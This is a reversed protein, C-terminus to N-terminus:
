NGKKLKSLLVDTIKIVYDTAAEIGEEYRGEKFCEGAIHGAIFLRQDEVRFLDSESVNSNEYNKHTKLWKENQVSLHVLRETIEKLSEGIAAFDPIPYHVTRKSKKLRFDLIQLAIKRDDKEKSKCNILTFGDQKTVEVIGLRRLDQFSRKSVKESSIFYEVNVSEPSQTSHYRIWKVFNTLNIVAEKNAPKERM